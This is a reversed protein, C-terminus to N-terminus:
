RGGSIAAVALNAKVAFRGRRRGEGVCCDVVMMGRRRGRLYLSCPRDIIRKFVLFGDLRYRNGGAFLKGAYCVLRCDFWLRAVLLCLFCLCADRLM